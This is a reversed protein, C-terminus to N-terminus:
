SKVLGNLTDILLIRVKGFIFYLFKQDVPNLLEIYWFAIRFRLHVFKLPEGLLPGFVVLTL